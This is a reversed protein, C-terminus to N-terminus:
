RKGIGDAILSEEVDQNSVAPGIQEGDVSLLKSSTTDMHGRVNGVQEDLAVRRATVHLSGPRNEFTENVWWFTNSCGVVM